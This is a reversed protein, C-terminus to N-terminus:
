ELIEPISLGSHQWMYFSIPGYHQVTLCGDSIVLCVACAPYVQFACLYFLSLSLHLMLM